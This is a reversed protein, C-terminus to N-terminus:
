RISIFKFANHLTISCKACFSAKSADLSKITGKYDAMICFDDPCHDLGFTHGLEHIVVKQFRQRFLGKDANKSMRFTSVVCPARNLFGLGFIGWDPYEGKTTSIDKRTCGLIKTSTGANLSDLYACLIEARYRGRPKYFAQAPLPIPALIRVVPNGFQAVILPPLERVLMTDFDGMPQIAITYEACFLRTVIVLPFFFFARM